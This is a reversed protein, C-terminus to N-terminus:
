TARKVVIRNGHVEAVVIPEGAEILDGETVVDFPEGDFDARGAPRLMSAAKGRRGVLEQRSEAESPPPLVAESTVTPATSPPPAALIMKGLYPTRHLYRGLLLTGLFVGIAVLGVQAISSRFDGFEVSTSPLTFSQLSLMVSVLMLLLGSIGLLGFGPTVFVEIALMVLGIFFLVIEWVEALGAVYKGLFFVAILALGITAFAGSGGMKFELMIALLGLTLLVPGIFDLWRVLQESWTWELTVVERASLNYFALLEERNKITASSFGYRRAKEDDMTLLKGSELVVPARRPDKFRVIEEPSRLLNRYGNGTFYEHKGDVTELEYVETGLTVMAEILADPYKGKGYNKFRERLYSDIKESRLMEGSTGSIVASDGLLSKEQMVIETCAVSIMSGASIAEPNVWAVTPAWTIGAILDAIRFADALGGGPTHMEFVILAPDMGKATAVRRRVSYLMGGGVVGDLPIFVVRRGGTPKARPQGRAEFGKGPSGASAEGGSPEKDRLTLVETLPIDLKVAVQEGKELTGSSLGLAKLEAAGLKPPANPAAVRESAVYSGPALKRFDEGLYFAPQDEKGEFVVRYVELSPDVLARYFPRLRPRWATFADLADALKTREEDSAPPTFAAPALPVLRAKEATFLRDCALALLTDSATGPERVLAATKVNQDHLRAIARAAELAPGAAQPQTHLEIVILSLKGERMAEALREHFREALLSDLKGELPIHAARPTPPPAPPPTPETAALAGAAFASVVALRLMNLM